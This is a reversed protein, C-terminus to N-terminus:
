ALINKVGGGVMCFLALSQRDGSLYTYFKSNCFAICFFLFSEQEGEFESVIFKEANKNGIEFFKLGDRGATNRFRGDNINRISHSGANGRSAM